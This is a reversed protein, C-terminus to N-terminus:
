PRPRGFGGSCRTVMVKPLNVDLLVVAPNAAPRNQYRGERFLYHLAQEGDRVVYVETALPCPALAVLVLELDKANDEV